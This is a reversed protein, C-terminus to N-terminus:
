PPSPKGDRLGIKIQFFAIKVETGSVPGTFYNFDQVSGAMRRTADAKIQRRFFRQDAPVRNKFATDAAGIQGAPAHFGQALTDILQGAQLIYFHQKWPM